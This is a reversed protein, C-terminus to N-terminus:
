YVGKHFDCVGSSSTASRAHACCEGNCGSRIPLGTCSEYPIVHADVRCKAALLARVECFKKWTSDLSEPFFLFSQSHEHKALLQKMQCSVQVSQVDGSRTGDVRISGLSRGFRTSWSDILTYPSTIFQEEPLAVWSFARRRKEEVYRRYIDPHLPANLPRIWKQLALARYFLPEDVAELWAPKLWAEHTSSANFQAGPEAGARMPDAVQAHGTLLSQIADVDSLGYLDM